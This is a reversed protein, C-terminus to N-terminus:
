ITFKMEIDPRLLARIKWTMNPQSRRVCFRGDIVPVHIVSARKNACRPQFAERYNMAPPIKGRLDILRHTSHCALLAAVLLWQM